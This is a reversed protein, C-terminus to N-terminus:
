ETAVMLAQKNLPHNAQQPHAAAAGHLPSQDRSLQASQKAHNSAQQFHKSFNKALSQKILSFDKSSSM